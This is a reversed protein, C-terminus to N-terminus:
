NLKLLLPFLHSAFPQLELPDSAVVDDGSSNRHELGVSPTTSGRFTCMTKLWMIITLKYCLFTQAVLSDQFQLFKEIAAIESSTKPLSFQHTLGSVQNNKVDGEQLETQNLGVIDRPRKYGSFSDSILSDEWSSVAYRPSCRRQLSFYAWRLLRADSRGPKETM